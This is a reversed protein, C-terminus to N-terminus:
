RGTLARAQVVLAIEEDAYAELLAQMRELHDPWPSRPLCAAEVLVALEHFRAGQEHAVGRAIALSRAAGDVDGGIRQWQAQLRLLPARVCWEGGPQALALGRAVSAGMEAIHGADRCAEAHHMHFGATGIRMGLRECSQRGAEMEAFGAQVDGREAILHGHLWSFSGPVDPLGHARIVDFIQELSAIAPEREGAFYHVAAALQLAIMQSIPHRIRRALAVADAAYRRASAPEGSWWLVLGLYARAEVAPDQVFIVPPLEAGVADHVEIVVELHRRAARLRGLTALTMGTASNGTILLAPDSAAEGLDLIRRALELARELQCRAFSVWWLGHLARARAPSDAVQDCLAQAREFVAAVEPHTLVQLRTLAVGELVRLDLETAARPAGDPLRALLELGHRVARVAERPAGRDLALGAVGALQRIAGAPDGGREFHMALEAAVESGDGHVELLATAIQRHWQMRQVLSIREYIVQRYLTHRFAYRAAIRGDSLAKAGTSRLWHGRAAVLDLAEHVQDPGADPLPPLALHSFEAGATAAAELLRQQLPPLRTFQREVVAAIGRPVGFDNGDPFSWRQGERRLRGGDVLEDLVNVVFLPLGETHGHLARVFSEPPEEGGVREAVLAGVEAESLAELDLERCLRHLRLELRLGALPHESVIVDTPRFSGLVLLAAPTRRRALYGLLNVTAHDSWHLDELVLLLPREATCRDILEGFERLMRDQTAGAVERQLQQRDEAALYWPLQVLWTPAVQRMLAVIAAGTQGRGLENLAELVPMYAEGPGYHQVCQGTAAVFAGAPLAAVFRDILTSKGIGAEGAVLALQRRGQCAAEFCDRLLALPADRGVIGTAPLPAPISAPLPAAALPAAAAPSAPLAPELPAIFRYGRRSATEIYRPQRADDDLANRLHSVITKLVSESVHRHGWVADLLVDKTLLQNPRRALVCLVAFAKPQLEIARGARTLRANGEDIQFADFRVLLPTSESMSTGSPPSYPLPGAAVTDFGIASRRSVVERSASRLRNAGEV